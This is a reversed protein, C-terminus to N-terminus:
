LAGALRFLKEQRAAQTPPSPEGAELWQELRVSSQELGAELCCELDGQQRAFQRVADALTNALIRRLWAAQEGDSTGRFQNRREHAKLLAEQVVDSPDLRSRLRPDLQMRALLRLYDRYDELSRRPGGGEESM